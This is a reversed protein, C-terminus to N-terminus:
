SEVSRTPPSTSAFERGLQQARRRGAYQRLVDVDLRRCGGARAAAAAAPWAFHRHRVLGAGGGPRLAPGHPSAPRAHGGVPGLHSYEAAPAFVIEGDSQYGRPTEWGPYMEDTVLPIPDPM